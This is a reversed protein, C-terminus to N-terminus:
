RLYAVDARWGRIRERNLLDRFRASILLEPAPARVGHTQGAPWPLGVLNQTRGVDCGEWADRAVSLESLLNLGSVHGAPCRYKGGADDDFPDIGFQTPTVAPVPESMVVLQHWVPLPKARREARRQRREAYEAVAAQYLPDQKPENLWDNFSASDAKIGAAAARRLLERGAPVHRLDVADDEYRAKHRVPRLQFGTLGAETMLRALRDSVIWEDDAITGAIDKTKPAKRLDLRLNSVQRRPMGCFSCADSYDYITGCEEGTPEFLATIRVHFLEAVALERKGYRHILSWGSFFSDNHTARLEKRLAGIQPFRADDAAIVIKRIREGLRVGEDPGFLLHAFEEHVRFEYEARM